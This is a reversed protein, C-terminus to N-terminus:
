SKPDNILTRCIGNTCFILIGFFDMGKVNTTAIESLIELNNFVIQYSSGIFLFVGM